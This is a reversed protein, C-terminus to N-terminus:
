KFIQQSKFCDELSFRDPLGLKSLVQKLWPVISVDIHDDFWMAAENEWNLTISTSSSEFHFAHIEWRNGDDGILHFIVQKKLNLQSDCLGTEEQIESLVQSIPSEGSPLYGTICHWLHKDYGVKASRKFLSLMNGHTIAAAVISQTSIKKKTATAQAM